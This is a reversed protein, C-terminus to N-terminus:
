QDLFFYSNESLSLMLMAVLLILQLSDFHKALYLYLCMYEVM